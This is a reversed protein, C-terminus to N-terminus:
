ICGSYVGNREKSRLLSEITCHHVCVHMIGNLKCSCNGFRPERDGLSFFFFSFVVVTGGILTGFGVGILKMRGTEMNRFVRTELGWGGLLRVM